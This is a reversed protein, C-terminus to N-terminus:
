FGSAVHDLFKESIEVAAGVTGTRCCEIAAGIVSYLNMGQAEGNGVGVRVLDILIQNEKLLIQHHIWSYASNTSAVVTGDDRDNRRKIEIVRQDVAGLAVGHRDDWGGKALRDFDSDEVAATAIVVATPKSFGSNQFEGETREREGKQEEVSCYVCM